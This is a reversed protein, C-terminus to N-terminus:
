VGPPLPTQLMLGRVEPATEEWLTEVLVHEDEVTVLYTSAWLFPILVALGLPQLVYPWRNLCVM